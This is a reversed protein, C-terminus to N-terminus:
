PALAGLDLRGGLSLTGEGVHVSTISLRSRGSGLRAPLEISLAGDSEALREIEAELDPFCPRRLAGGGTPRSCSALVESPQASLSVRDRSVRARTRARLTAVLTTTRHSRRELRVRLEGIGLHAERSRLDVVPPLALEFGAVSIELSRAMRKRLSALRAPDSLLGGLTGSRWAADLLANVLDESVTIRVGRSLPRPAAPLSRGTVLPGPTAPTKPPLAGLGAGPRVGARADYRLYLARGPVIRPTGCPSLSLLLRVRASGTSIRAPLAGELRANLKPLWADVEKQLLRSTEARGAARAAALAGTFGKQPATILSGLAALIGGGKLSALTGLTGTASARLDGRQALVLLGKAGGRLSMPLVARVVSGDAFMAELRADVGGKVLPLHVSVSTIHPLGKAGDLADRLMTALRGSLSDIAQQSLAISLACRVPTGPEAFPGEVWAFAARRPPHGLYTREYSVTHLGPGLAALDLTLAARPGGAVVRPAGDVRVEAEPGRDVQRLVIPPTRTPPAPTALVTLGGRRAHVLWARLLLVSAALVGLAFLVSLARKM